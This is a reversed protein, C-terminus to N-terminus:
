PRAKEKKNKQMAKQMPNLQPETVNNKYVSFYTPTRPVPTINNSEDIDALEGYPDLKVATVEKNKLFVKTFKDENKRWIEVPIREIEKTGDKYTWELIIPMVLGGKNSFAIEYYNKDKFQEKEKKSLTEAYLKTKVVEVSDATEWPRYTSYFDILEPDKETPFELTERNRMKTLDVFPKEAKVERSIERVEPDKDLDAKYWKVSDLSIDVADTGFFWGRWFWDLDVGSADEMTRFFDAPTPKKFMWRNAYEKFAYDFLERGMITERLITLATSPKSYANPGFYIINESNTMIPELQDKPLAMYSTINRPSNGFKTPFDPDFEEQAVYDLFSNLGEDMWTWQREDSNVIMPFYNHGVEHIIVGIAGWKVRETYTGDKEARGYNFAIMPYEMGNAAEVSIAVPYPYPFTYKSYTKLTHAVAKTSYRSYVPFAEEPYYSMCMVKRGDDTIHPMADWVYKRSATWAFDRVNDAKFIWTKTNESKKRKLHEKVEDLTVIFLPEQVNKAKEWRKQQTPTLVTSYNLCEGTSAVMYDDPVTMKVVYNGFELTFEGRGTFQKNQWGEVDSYVCMRPFWQTITFIYEDQDKFYEYGGRGRLTMRDTIYYHWKIKFRFIEGAKLPQPLEVRMMTKNITYQLDKGKDDKVEHIKHGYDKDIKKDLDFSNLTGESLVKGGGMSSPDFTHSEADKAHENEDLQLWLYKLTNPSNNYYTITETGDLRLNKVDLTCDIDYDARQQWYDPGPAGDMGRYTNGTPLITGLQEFKNGHNSQNQAQLVGFVTIQFLIFLLFFQKFRKFTM